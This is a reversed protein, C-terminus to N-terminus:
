EFVFFWFFWGLLVLVSVFCCTFLEPVRSHLCEAGEHAEHGGGFGRYFTFHARAGDMVVGSARPKSAVAGPPCGGDQWVPLKKGSRSCILMSSPVRPCLRQTGLPRSASHPPSVACVSPLPAAAEVLLYLAPHPSRAAGGIQFFRQRHSALFFAPVRTVLLEEWHVIM